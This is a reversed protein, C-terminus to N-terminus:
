RSIMEYGFERFDDWYIDEILLLNDNTLNHIGLEKSYSTKGIKQNPLKLPLNYIEMLNSFEERLNEFRLM